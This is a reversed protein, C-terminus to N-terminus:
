PAWPHSGVRAAVTDVRPEGTLYIALGGTEELRKRDLKLWRPTCSKPLWRDSVVIDAKACAQTITPWDIRTGSRTALLRWNGEKGPTLAICADRSCRSFAQGALELPDGDFGSSEAMVDRIYDGSRERLLFPKGHQVVAVHRGDGTVLLDPSPATFVGLLGVAIPAMGYLRPRTTWLCLWLGGTVMLAFSWGPLAALTAVAGSAGAVAHALGLLLKLAWGTLWWFPAGLGVIDLLLAIAELPMIVFTTLPIAIINAGVGYLGARHFHFLALPILAVEVVLGTVVMAGLARLMKWLFPEDRAMFHKRAWASSHLAIIATVAAFSLQFSAGALSEPWFLLVLLAAVALLRISIADRGLAMGALVLVATVCSRITPVQAGTLLTYGIGALAGAAAAVVMLNFRLALRESLALLRLTLLLTAGVVAAIHLGSVSLLHTLGSRRMAEADEEGVANQDGTVLATAIGGPTGNLKSRIHEGLRQRVSDLGTPQAPQNVAVPGLATGVAGIGRFWADRSFDYSGPLAMPPPPALRARVKILAGPALGLVRETGDFSVRVRPPIEGSTPALTLRTQDRAVLQEVKEVRAQVETVIPRDLRPAAVWGSRLWILACGVVVAAAFAGAAREARGGQASLGLVAVAGAICILALWQEPGGLAFWGAIGAGLGVVGWPPLQGRERELFAEIADRARSAQEPLGRAWGLPLGGIAINPAGEM